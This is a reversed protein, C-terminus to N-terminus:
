LNFIQIHCELVLKFIFAYNTNYLNIYIHRPVSSKLNALLFSVAEDYFDKDEIYRSLINQTDMIKNSKILREIQKDFLIKIFNYQLNYSINGKYLLDISKYKPLEPYEILIGDIHTVLYYPGHAGYENHEYEAILKMTIRSHLYDNLTNNGFKYSCCGTVNISGYPTILKSILTNYYSKIIIGSKTNLSSFGDAIHGHYQSTYGYTISDDYAKTLIDIIKFTNDYTTNVKNNLFIHNNIINKTKKNIRFKIIDEKKCYDFLGLLIDNIDIITNM